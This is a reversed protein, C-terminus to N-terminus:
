AGFSVTVWVSSSEPNNTAHTNIAGIVDNFVRVLKQLGFTKDEVDRLFSLIGETESTEEGWEDLVPVQFAAMVEEPLDIKITASETLTASTTDVALQTGVPLYLEVDAENGNADVLTAAARINAELTTFNSVNDIKLGEEKDIILKENGIVLYSGYPLTISSDTATGTEVNAVLASWAAQAADTRHPTATIIAERDGATESGETRGSVRYTFSNGAVNVEVGATNFTFVNSLWTGLDPNNTLGTSVTMSHSKTGEIELGSVDTMTVGVTVESADVHADKVIIGAIYNDAV